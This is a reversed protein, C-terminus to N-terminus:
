DLKHAMAAKEVDSLPLRQKKRHNIVPKVAPLLTMNPSSTTGVDEDAASRRHRRGRSGSRCDRRAHHDETRHGAASRRPFLQAGRQKHLVGATWLAPPPSIVDEGHYGTFTGTFSEAAALEFLEKRSLVPGGGVTHYAGEAFYFKVRRTGESGHFCGNVGLVVSGEQASRELASVIDQTVVNGSTEASLTM